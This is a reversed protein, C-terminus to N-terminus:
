KELLDNSDHITTESPRLIDSSAVFKHIAQTLALIYLHVRDFEPSSYRGVGNFSKHALFYIAWYFAQLLAAGALSAVAFYESSSIWFIGTLILVISLAMVFPYAILMKREKKLFAIKRKEQESSVQNLVQKLRSCFESYLRQLGKFEHPLNEKNEKNIALISNILGVKYPSTPKLHRELDEMNRVASHFQEECKKVFENVFSETELFISLNKRIITLEGDKM